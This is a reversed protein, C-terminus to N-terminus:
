FDGKVRFAVGRDGLQNVSYEMRFVFDYISVVDLGIGTTRLFANSLTNRPDKYKNYAYGMDGFVKLYFSFPIKDHTKSKIPNKFIYTFLKQYITTNSLLGITGDVVYNELGRLYVEGYGLQGLNYYPQNFPLKVNMLNHFQIFSSESLSLANTSEFNVSFVNLKKTFGSNGVNIQYMFGKKPFPIYDVNYYQMAASLELYNLSNKQEPFYAPNLKLITDELKEM